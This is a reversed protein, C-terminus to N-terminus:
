FKVLLLQTSCRILVGHIIRAGQVFKPTKWKHRSRQWLVRKKGCERWKRLDLIHPSLYNIALTVLGIWSSLIKLDFNLFLSCLVMALKLLKTFLNQRVLGLLSFDEKKLCSIDLIPRSFARSTMKKHKKSGM